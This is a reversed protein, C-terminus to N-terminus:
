YDNMVLGGMAVQAKALQSVLKQAPGSQSKGRRCVVVAAGARTAILRADSGHAAAPTDVLVYHFKRTLEELLLRFAANQALELPNPPVAGVPLIYLNPLSPVPSICNVENRGSLIGSLGNAAEVGFVRHLRPTRMDADIILTRGPLQSFAVALNAAIFTKGDGINPSVVALSRRPGDPALATMLLHSRLDRFSEVEESFPENAMRLERHLMAGQAKAYPYEFQQSLAWLVDDRKVYGLDVASDGFRMGRRRQHLLVAEVQEPKLAQSEILIAGIPRELIEARGVSPDDAEGDPLSSAGDAASYEGLVATDNFIPNPRRLNLRM